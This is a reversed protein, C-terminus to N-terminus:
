TLHPLRGLPRLRGLLLPIRGAPRLLFGAPRRVPPPGLQLRVLHHHGLQTVGLCDRRKLHTTM